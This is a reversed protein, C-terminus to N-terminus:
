VGVAIWFFTIVGAGRGQYVTFGTLTNNVVGPNAQQGDATTVQVGNVVPIAAQTYAIPYTVNVFSGNTNIAGMGYQVLLGNPMRSWGPGSSFDSLTILPSGARTLSGNVNLSAAQTPGLNTSGSVILSTLSGVSTINPQAATTVTGAFTANTANTASGASTAFGSSNAFNANTANTAAAAAGTININYTGNLRGVPLNGSSINDANISNIGAGNGNFTSNVSGATITGSVNLGSLTGVSTINPQAGSTVTSAASAFSASPVAGVVNAGPINTLGAGSGTFRTTAIVNASTTNGSVNLNTLTGVSTVNPQANATVTIATTAAGAATWGVAGGGLSTLVQGATGGTIRLNAATGINVVTGSFAVNGSVTLSSLTGVTTISPQFPSSITGLFSAATITGTSATINGATIGGSVALSTLTGVSTINPQANNTVTQATVAASASQWSLVGSGNTSLVQGASGGLIRVNSVQGLNAVPGNFQVNGSVTLGTLTGTSTINPQANNTVTQATVASTANTANPVTPFTGTLSTIPVNTLGAGSGTFIGSTTVNGATVNGTVGLSTLTGVSTINPQAATTVTGATGATTASTANTAQAVPGVINAGAVNTIGNISSGASLTWNGIILGSTTNAGTTLTRGNFVTNAGFAGINGVYTPLFVQVNANTYTGDFSVPAGNAFYYNNTRIGITGPGDIIVNGSTVYLSTGSASNINASGNLQWAGTITGPTGVTGTSLNTTQINGAILTDAVNAIAVSANVVSLNAINANNATLQNSITTNNATVNANATLNNLTLDEITNPSLIPYWNAPNTEGDSPCLYLIENTTNFWLQGRIPNIPVTPSAFNELSRIFNTNVLQGYSAFNRGPLALSTSSDNVVGDPITTLVSGNTRLITYSM